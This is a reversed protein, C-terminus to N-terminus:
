RKLDLGMYRLLVVQSLGVKLGLNDVLFKATMFIVKFDSLLVKRKFDALKAFHKVCIAITYHSKM